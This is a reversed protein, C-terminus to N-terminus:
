LYSLGESLDKSVIVDSFGKLREKKIVDNIIRKMSEAQEKCRTFDGEIVSAVLTL